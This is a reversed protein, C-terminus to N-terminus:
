ITIKRLLEEPSLNNIKKEMELANERLKNPDQKKIADDLIHQIENFKKYIKRREEKTMVVWWEKIKKDIEIFKLV